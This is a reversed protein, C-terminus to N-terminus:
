FLDPLDNSNRIVFSKSESYFWVDNTYIQNEDLPIKVIYKIVLRVEDNIDENINIKYINQTESEREYSVNGNIPMLVSKNGDNELRFLQINDVNQTDISKNIALKIGDKSYISGSAVLNAYSGGTISIEGESVNLDNELVGNDLGHVINTAPVQVTIKPTQITYSAQGGLLKNYIIKNNEIPEFELTGFKDSKTTITFEIPDIKNAVYHGNSTHNYTITPVNVTINNNEISEFGSKATFNDGLSFVLKPKFVYPRYSSNGKIRNAIAKMTKNQINNADPERFYDESSGGLELHLRNIDKSTMTPNTSLTIINYGKDKIYKIEDQSYEADGSSIFFINKNAEPRDSNELISNVISFTDGVKKYNQNDLQINKIIKDNLDTTNLTLESKLEANNNYTVLAYRTKNNKLDPNNLLDNWLVNKIGTFRNAEGIDKSVDLVIVIDNMTMNNSDNYTFDKADINYKVTIDQNPKAIVKSDSTLRANIVPLENPLINVELSKNVQIKETEKNWPFTINADQYIKFFGPNNAKVIFKFHVDEAEYRIKGNASGSVKNYTIDPISVTNGGINLNFGTTLTLNLKINTVPYSNIINTAIQEFVSNIANDSAEFFNDINNSMSTHIKQMKNNGDKNMGYGISFANYGKSKIINGMQIAYNLARNNDDSYGTGGIDVNTITEKSTDVYYTNNNKSIRTYYTPEGDSMLVITKNANINSEKSSDLLYIARNLGEGTNTGGTASLGSIINKLETVNNADILYRGNSKHMKGTKEYSVIGLKLNEVDKMKDIFNYCAKKVEWMKTTKHSGWVGHEKCYLINPSNDCNQNAITDKMSGSTDLVLIIEKAPVEAEFPKPKIVGEVTIDEGVLVETPNASIEIDFDPKNGIGADINVISFLLVSIISFITIYKFVKINKKM